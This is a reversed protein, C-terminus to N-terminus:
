SDNNNVLWLSFQKIDRVEELPILGEINLNANNNKRNKILSYLKSVSKYDFISMTLYCWDSITLLCLRKILNKNTLSGSKYEKLWWYLQRALYGKKSVHVSQLFSSYKTKIKNLWICMNNLLADGPLLGDLDEQLGLYSKGESQNNGYVYHGFSKPSIGVVLLCEPSFFWSDACLLLANLAYHDPFPPQFMGEEIRAMAKRSIVTTQINLPIKVNFDYMSEVINLREDKSLIRETSFEESYSFFAKQYYSVNNSIAEPCIYGYANYTICEPHNNSTIIKDLADFYGPLLIDDDGIMLIYEGTSAELATNWNKTVNVTTDLRVSVLRSDNKYSDVIESTQDDNANDSIILEINQYGQGLVSDICNKLYPGGNKTPLLVSYKINM